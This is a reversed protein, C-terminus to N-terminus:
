LIQNKSDDNRKAVPWGRSRLKDEAGHKVIEAGLENFRNSARAKMDSEDQMQRIIKNLEQINTKNDM